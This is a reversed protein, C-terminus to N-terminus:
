IKPKQASSKCIFSTPQDNIKKTSSEVKQPSIAFLLSTSEDKVVADLEQLVNEM